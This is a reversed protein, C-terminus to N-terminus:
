ERNQYLFQCPRLDAEDEFAILIPEPDFNHIYISHLSFLHFM